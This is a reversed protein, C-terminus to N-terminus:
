TRALLRAPMRVSTSSFSSNSQTRIGNWGSSIKQNTLKGVPFRTHPHLPQSLPSPSLLLFPLSNFLQHFTFMSVNIPLLLVCFLVLVSCTFENLARVRLAHVHIYSFAHSMLVIIYIYTQSIPLIQFPEPINKSFRSFGAAVRSQVM